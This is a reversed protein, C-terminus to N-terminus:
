LHSAIYAWRGGLTERVDRLVRDVRDRHTGSGDWPLPGTRGDFRVCFAVVGVAMSSSLDWDGLPAVLGCTPCTYLPETGSERWEQCLRVFPEWDISGLQDEDPAGCRPCRPPGFGEYTMWVPEDNAYCELVAQDVTRSWATDGSWMVPVDPCGRAAFWAVVEAARRSADPLPTSLDVFQDSYEGM